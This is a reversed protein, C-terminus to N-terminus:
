KLRKTEGRIKPMNVDICLMWVNQLVAGVAPLLIYVSYDSEKNSGETSRLYTCVIPNKVRTDQHCWQM